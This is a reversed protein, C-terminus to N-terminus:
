AVRLLVVSQCVMALNCIFILGIPFAAFLHPAIRNEVRFNFFLGLLVFLLPLIYREQVGEISTAGVANFSIYLALIILLSSLLVIFLALLRTRYNALRITFRNSDLATVFLLVVLLFAPAVSQFLYGTHPFYTLGVSLAYFTSTNVFTGFLFRMIIGASILPNNLLFQIQQSPNAAFVRTDPQNIGTLFFPIIFILLLFLSFATVSLVVEIKGKRSLRTQPEWLLLLLIALLPFYVAKVIIGATLVTLSGLLGWLTLTKKSKVLRLAIAIGLSVMALIWTDYSFSVAMLLPGLLLLISALLVKKGPLSKIAFYGLVVYFLLTFLRGLVLNGIIGVHFLRGVWLGVSAPLYGIMAVGKASPANQIDQNNFREMRAYYDNLEDSSFLTANSLANGDADQLAILRQDAATDTNVFGYSLAKANAYHIQDDFNLGLSQPCALLMISGLTLSVVTFFYQPTKHAIVGAFFFFLGVTITLSVLISIFLLVHALVYLCTFSIALILVSVFVLLLIKKKSFFAKINSVVSAISFDLDERTYALVRQVLIELLVSCYCFFVFQKLSWDHLNLPTKGPTGSLTLFEIILAILPILVIFYTLKKVNLKGSTAFFSLHANWLFPIALFLMLSVFLPVADGHSMLILAVGGFFSVTVALTAVIILFLGEFRSRIDKHIMGFDNM